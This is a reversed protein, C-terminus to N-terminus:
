PVLSSSQCKGFHEPLDHPAVNEMKQFDIKSVEDGPRHYDEHEGDFFFAVRFARVRMTTITAAFSSATPDSPDDTAITRLDPEPIAPKCERGIV